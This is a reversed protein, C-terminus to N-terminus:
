HTKYKPLIHMHSLPEVIHWFYLAILLPKTLDIEVHSASGVIHFHQFMPIANWHRFPTSLSFMNFNVSNKEEKM